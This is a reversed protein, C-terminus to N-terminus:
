CKKLSSESLYFHRWTGFSFHTIGKERHFCVLNLDNRNFSHTKIHYCFVLNYDFIVLYLRNNNQQQKTPTKPTKKTPIKKNKLFAVNKINRISVMPHLVATLCLGTIKSTRDSEQFAKLHTWPFLEMDQIRSPKLPPM